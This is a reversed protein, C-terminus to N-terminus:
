WRYKWKCINKQCKQCQSVHLFFGHRHIMGAIEDSVHKNPNPTHTHTNTKIKIHRKTGEKRARENKGMLIITNIYMYIFIFIHIIHGLAWVLRVVFHWVMCEFKGCLQSHALIDYRHAQKKLWQTCMSWHTHTRTHKTDKKEEQEATTITEKENESAITVM